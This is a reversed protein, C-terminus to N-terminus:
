LRWPSRMARNLMRSAEEDGLITEKVPDWRIKRGARIAIDSLHSISDSRVAVDITCVTPSRSKVCDLLNQGHNASDYLRTEEPGITSHLLQPPDAYLGGRDVSIWGESGIFTTGHGEFRRYAAVVPQAVNASMFRMRLGDAYACWVDWELATDYLGENPFTGQGEYEVPGTNETDSGWLAIDLPHSGWGAIYGLAYDSIFYAGLNTCRDTTYPAEPAPGLWLDYDFGEPVPAPAVSGGASGGPAWVHMTHLRGIRGNRVLECAQRFHFQSRQQTGYQFVTGYRACTERLAMDQALTLGLPKEVYIDKGAKAALMAAPVHWHDPTAIIVADIDTRALMERLDNYVACGKYVGGAKDRAYHSEIEAAREDRRSMRPDCVAVSQAGPLNLFGRLLGSGQNGVGIHGLTIREGAPPTLADGLAKSTIVHRASVIGAGKALVNKLLRRRTLNM